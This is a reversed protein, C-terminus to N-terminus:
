GAKELEALVSPAMFLSEKATPFIGSKVEEAYQSIASSM